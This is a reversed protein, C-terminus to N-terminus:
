NKADKKLNKIKLEKKDKTWLVELRTMMRPAKRGRGRANRCPCVKSLNTRRTTRMLQRVEGEGLMCEARFFSSRSCSWREPWWCWEACCNRCGVASSGSWTQHLLMSSPFDVSTTRLDSLSTRTGARGSPRGRSSLPLPRSRFRINRFRPRSQVLILKVALFWGGHHPLLLRNSLM